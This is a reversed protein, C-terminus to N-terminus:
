KPDGSKTTTTTAFTTTTTGGATTTTDGPDGGADAGEGDSNKTPNNSALSVYPYVTYRISNGAGVLSFSIGTSSHLETVRKKILEFPSTRNALQKLYM